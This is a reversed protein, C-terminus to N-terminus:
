VIFEAGLMWKIQIIEVGCVIWELVRTELLMRAEHTRSM